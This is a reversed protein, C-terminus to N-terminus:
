IPFCRDTANNESIVNELYNKSGNSVTLKGVISEFGSRIQNIMSLAICTLVFTAGHARTISKKMVIRPALVVCAAFAVMVIKRRLTTPRQLPTAATSQHHGHGHHHHSHSHGMHMSVLASSTPAKLRDNPRAIFSSHTSFTLGPIPLSLALLIRLKAM